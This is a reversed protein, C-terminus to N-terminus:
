AANSPVTCKHVIVTRFWIENRTENKTGFGLTCQAQIESRQLGMQLRNQNDCITTGSFM